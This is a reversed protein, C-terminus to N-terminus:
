ARWAEATGGEYRVCVRDGRDHLVGSKTRAALMSGDKLELEYRVDHGYYEVNTVLACGGALLSVDEPRVLVSVDASRDNPVDGHLSIPVSGLLTAAYGPLPLDDGHDTAIGDIASGIRGRVFNAEGVFGGVWPTAPRRYLDDPTGVQEIRGDRLVAVQDGLVFAEDQDHTVFVSTVEVERLITAVEARVQVRLAADLASFPEDLLLVAPQPALSRALAVRQQQGGSLTDPLREGLGGLDVLDLTERVREARASRNLKTGHLTSARLGFEINQAVTLHPFLAGDQFVMGVHRREPHVWTNPGSVMRDGIRVSGSTPRELGAIARLLSTKGCGSPGLLATISGAPVVLSADRVADVGPEYSVTVGDIAVDV